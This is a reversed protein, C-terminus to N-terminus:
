DMRLVDFSGDVNVICVIGYQYVIATQGNANQTLMAVPKYAPDGPYTLQQSTPALVWKGTGFPSWGGGHSYREEIQEKFPRPDDSLLIEPLYGTLEMGRPAREIWM